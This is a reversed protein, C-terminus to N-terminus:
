GQARKRHYRALGRWNLDFRDALEYVRTDLDGVHHGLERRVEEVFWAERAEDSEDRALSKKVLASSTEIREALESLHLGVSTSPGFHALFMTHPQWARIRALSDRWAELDVDPPPTAPLVFGKPPIRIGATDGVFAIGADGAFFSVHHSAHGPTYAVDIAHGAADIREGGKLASMAAPPVPRIEGWLRDMADGYLRAASAILKEPSAMHPAGKEHVLVRLRPNEHVLTGV